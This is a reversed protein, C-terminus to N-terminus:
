LVKEIQVTMGEVKVSFSYRRFFAAVRQVDCDPPLSRTGTLKNIGAGKMRKIGETLLIVGISNNRMASNVHLEELVASQGDGRHALYIHGILPNTFGIVYAYIITLHRTEEVTVVVPTLDDALVVFVASSRGHLINHINQRETQLQSITTGAQQLQVTLLDIECQMKSVKAKLSLEPVPLGIARLLHRFLSM